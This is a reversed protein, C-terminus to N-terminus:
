WDNHTRQRFRKDTITGKHKSANTLVNGWIQELKDVESM